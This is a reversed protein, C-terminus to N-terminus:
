RMRGAVAVESARTIRARLTARQTASLLPSTTLADARRALEVAKGPQQRESALFSADLYANAANVVDGRTAAQTAAREMVEGAKSPSGAAYFLNAASWLCSYSDAHEEGRLEAARLHLKAARKADNRRITGLRLAEAREHLAHAEHSATVVTPSMPQQAAAPSPALGGALLLGLVPATHRARLRPTTHM